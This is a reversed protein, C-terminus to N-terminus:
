GTFGLRVDGEAVAIEECTATDISCTHLRAGAGETNLASQVLLRDEDLFVGSTTLAPTPVEGRSRGTAADLVEFGGPGFGDTMADVTLVSTGAPSFVASTYFRVGCDISRETEADGIPGTRACDVIEARLDDPAANGALIDGDTSVDWNRVGRAVEEADEGDPGSRVVSPRRRGDVEWETVVDEGAFSAAGGPRSGPQVGDEITHLVTGDAIDLVLYANREADLGVFRTGTSDVDGRGSVFGISEAMGDRGIRYVGATAGPREVRDLALYAGDPLRRVEGLAGMGDVQRTRDGDHITTDTAWLPEGTAGGDWAPDPASSAAPDDGRGAEEPAGAVAAITGGATGLVAAAALAAVVNRHM